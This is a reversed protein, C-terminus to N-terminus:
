PWCSGGGFWLLICSLGLPRGAGICTLIPSGILWLEHLLQHSQELAAGLLDLQSPTSPLSSSYASVYAKCVRVHDGVAQRAAKWGSICVVKFISAYVTSAYWSPASGELYPWATHFCMVPFCLFITGNINGTSQKRTQAMLHMFAMLYLALFLLLIGLPHKHSGTRRAETSIIVALKRCM